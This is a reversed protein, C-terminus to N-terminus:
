VVDGADIRGGLLGIGLNEAIEHLFHGAFRGYHPDLRLQDVLGNLDRNFELPEQVNVKMRLAGVLAPLKM